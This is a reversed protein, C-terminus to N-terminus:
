FESGEAAPLEEGSGGGTEVNSLETAMEDLTSDDEPVTVMEVVTVSELPLVADLLVM